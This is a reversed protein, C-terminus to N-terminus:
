KKKENSRALLYLLDSLRNLYIVINPNKIMGKKQLTVSRREARRTVTRAVDLASSAAGAGPICFSRIKINCKGELCDIERELICISGAGIKKKIKYSGAASTAVEAGLLILDKQVSHVVRKTNKDKSANKAMGLFSSVEDIAGCIEVRIDDKDVRKGCYLSTKGKDGTKTAIGM